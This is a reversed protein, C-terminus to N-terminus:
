HLNYTTLYYSLYNLLKNVDSHILVNLVAIREKWFRGLRKERRVVAQQYQYKM